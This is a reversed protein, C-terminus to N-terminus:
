GQLPMITPIPAFRPKEIKKKSHLWVALFVGDLIFVLVLFLVMLVTQVRSPEQSDSKTKVTRVLLQSYDTMAGTLTVVEDKQFKVFHAVKWAPGLACEIIKGTDNLRVMLFVYDTIDSGNGDLQKEKVATITGTYTKEKKVDYKLQVKAAPKPPEADAAATLAIIASVFILYRKM